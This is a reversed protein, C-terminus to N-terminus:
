NDVTSQLLVKINVPNSAWFFGIAQEGQGRMVVNGYRLIRGLVSQYSDLGEIRNLNVEKVMRRIVGQKVLVRSDTISYETFWRDILAAVLVYFAFFAFAGAGVAVLLLFLAVSQLGAWVVRWWTITGYYLVTEGPRLTAHTYSFM